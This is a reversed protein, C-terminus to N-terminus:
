RRRYAPAPAIPVVETTFEATPAELTAELRTTELLVESFQLDLHQPLFDLPQMEVLPTAFVPVALSCAMWRGAVPVGLQNCQGGRRGEPSYFRCRSCSSVQCQASKM